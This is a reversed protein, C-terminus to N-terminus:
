ATVQRRRRAFVAGALVALAGVAAVATLSGGDAGTSALSASESMVDSVYGLTGDSRVTIYLVASVQDGDPNVGYVTITHEGPEIEDPLSESYSFWGFQNAFDEAITVPASRLEGYWESDPELGWGIFDVTAGGVQEGVSADLELGIDLTNAGTISGIYIQFDSDNGNGAEIEFWYDGVILPTGSISCNDQDLILGPPLTGEGVSCSVAPFGIVDIDHTMSTGQVMSPLEDSNDIAPDIPQPPTLYFEGWTYGSSNAACVTVWFSGDDDPTGTIAGTASNFSLGDPLTSDLYYTVGTGSASIGDSYAVGSEYVDLEEDSWVPAAVLAATQTGNVAFVKSTLTSWDTWVGDSANAPPMNGSGFQWMSTGDFSATYGEETGCSGAIQMGYGVGGASFATDYTNNALFRASFLDDDATGGIYINGASDAEVYNLDWSGGFNAIEAALLEIVAPEGEDGYPNAGRAPVVMIAPAYADEMADHGDGALILEGGRMTMEWVDDILTSYTGIEVVGPESYSISFSEDPSLNYADYAFLTDPGDCDGLVFVRGTVSDYAIARTWSYNYCNTGSEDTNFDSDFYQYGTGSGGSFTDIAGTHDLALVWGEETGSDDIYSDGTIVWREVGEAMYSVADEIATEISTMNLSRGFAPYFAALALNSSGEVAEGADNGWDVGLTSSGTNTIRLAFGPEQWSEYTSNDSLSGFIVLDGNDAVEIDMARDFVALTPDLSFRATGSTGFSTDRVGNVYKAVIVSDVTSIEMGAVYVTSGSAVSTQWWAEDGTLNVENYDIGRLYADGFDQNIQGVTRSVAAAPSAAFVSLTFALIPAISSVIKNRM